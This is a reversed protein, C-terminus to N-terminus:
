LGNKFLPKTLIEDAGVEIAMDHVKKSINATLMCIYPQVIDCGDDKTVEDVFVRIAKIADFGNMVPMLADMIILKYTM